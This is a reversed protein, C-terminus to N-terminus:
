SSRSTPSAGSPVPDTVRVNECVGTGPETLASHTVVRALVVELPAVDDLPDVAFDLALELLM